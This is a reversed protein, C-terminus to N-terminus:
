LNISSYKFKRQKFAIDLIPKIHNSTRLERLSPLLDIIPDLKSLIDRIEKVPSHDFGEVGIPVSDLPTDEPMGMITIYANALFDESATHNEYAFRGFKAINLLFKKMDQRYFAPFSRCSWDMIVDLYINSDSRNKWNEHNFTDFAKDYHDFSSTLNEWDNYVEKSWEQINSNHLLVELEVLEDIYAILILFNSIDQFQFKKDRIRTFFNRVYTAESHPFWDLHSKVTSVLMLNEKSDDNLIKNLLRLYVQDDEEYSYGKSFHRGYLIEKGDARSLLETANIQLDKEHRQVIDYEIISMTKNERRQKAQNARRNAAEIKYMERKSKVESEGSEIDIKYATSAEEFNYYQNPNLTNATKLSNYFEMRVKDSRLITIIIYEKVNHDIKDRLYKLISFKESASISASKFNQLRDDEIRIVVPTGSVFKGRSVDNDFQLYVGMEKFEATMRGKAPVNEADSTRVIQSNVDALSFVPLKEPGWTRMSMNEEYGELFSKLISAVSNNKNSIRGEYYAMINEIWEAYNDKELSHHFLELAEEEVKEHFDIVANRTKENWILSERSRDVEVSSPNIKFALCGKREEIEMSPYNILGYNVNNLILHPKTYESESPISFYKGDYLLKVSTPVEEKTGDEEIVTFKINDFYQLQLTVAKRFINRQSPSTEIIISTGNKEETEEYYVITEDDTGEYFYVHPNDKGESNLRGIMSHYNFDFVRILFKRGNHITEMLYGSNSGIALPSKAGIGWKGLETDTNRKTSYGIELVGELRTKGTDPHREFGIGVGKDKITLIDRGSGKYEHIIEVINNEKDLYKEDYYGMFFNSDKSMEADSHIYFDEPKAKGALISLAKKKESIADVANSFVERVASKEPEKYQKSQQGDILMMMAVPDIRKRIGASGKEKVSEVIAM